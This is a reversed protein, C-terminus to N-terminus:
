KRVKPKGDSVKRGNYWVEEYQASWRIKEVLDLYSFLVEHTFTQDLNLPHTIIAIVGIGDVVHQYFVRTNKDKGYGPFYIAKNTPYNELAMDRKLHERLWRTTSETLLFEHGCEMTIGLIPGRYRRFNDMNLNQQM